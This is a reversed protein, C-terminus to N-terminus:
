LVKLQRIISIGQQFFPLQIIISCCVTNCQQPTGTGEVHARAGHSSGNIYGQDLHPVPLVTGRTLRDLYLLLSKGENIM